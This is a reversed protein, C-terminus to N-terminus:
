QYAWAGLSCPFQNSHYKKSGKKLAHMAKVVLTKNKAVHM